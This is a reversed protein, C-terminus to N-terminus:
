RYSAPPPTLANMSLIVLPCHIAIDHPVLSFRPLPLPACSLRCPLFIPPPLSARRWPRETSPEQASTDHRRSSRSPLLALFRSCAPPFALRALVAHHASVYSGYYYCEYSYSYYSCHCSAHMRAPRPPRLPPEGDLPQHTRPAAHSSEDCVTSLSPAGVALEM